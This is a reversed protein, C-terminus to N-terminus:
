SLLLLHANKDYDVSAPDRQSLLHSEFTISCSGRRKQCVWCIMAYIQMLYDGECYSVQFCSRNAGSCVSINLLFSQESGARRAIYVRKWVHDLGGEQQNERYKHIFGTSSFLFKQFNLILWLYIPACSINKALILIVYLYINKHIIYICM